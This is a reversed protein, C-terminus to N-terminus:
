FMQYGLYESVIIFIAVGMMLSFLFWFIIITFWVIDNIDMRVKRVWFNLVWLWVFFWLLVMWTFIVNANSAYLKSYLSYMIQLPLKLLEM